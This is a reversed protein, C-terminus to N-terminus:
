IPADSASGFEVIRCACAKEAVAATRPVHRTPLGTYAVAVWGTRGRLPGSRVRVRVRVLDSTEPDYPGAGTALAVLASGTPLRDADKYPTALTAFFDSFGQFGGAARLETGPPVDPILRTVLTYAVFHADRGRVLAIRGGFLVRVVSVRVGIPEFVVDGPREGRTTFDRAISAASETLAAEPEDSALWPAIDVRGLAGPRLQLWAPAAAVHPVPVASAPAAAAAACALLAAVFTRAFM